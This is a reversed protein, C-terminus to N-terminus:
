FTINELIQLILIYSELIIKASEKLTLSERVQNHTTSVHRNRHDKTFTNIHTM